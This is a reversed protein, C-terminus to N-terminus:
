RGFFLSRYDKEIDFFNVSTWTFHFNVCLTTTPRSNGRHHTRTYRTWWWRSNGKLHAMNKNTPRPSILDFFSLQSFYSAGHDRSTNYLVTYLCVCALLLKLPIGQRVIGISVRPMSCCCPHFVVSGGIGLLIWKRYIFGNNGLLAAGSEQEQTDLSYDIYLRREKTQKTRSNKENKKAGERERQERTNKKIIKKWLSGSRSGGRGGM